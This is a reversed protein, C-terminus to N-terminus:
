ADCWSAIDAPASAIRIGLRNSFTIFSDGNSHLFNFQSIGMRSSLDPEPATKLESLELSSVIRSLRGRIERMM